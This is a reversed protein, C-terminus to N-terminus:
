IKAIVFLAAICIWTCTKTHVCTKSEHLYIGLVVLALNQTSYARSQSFGGSQSGCHGRGKVSDGAIAWLDQEGVDQHTNPTNLAGPKPWGSSHTTSGRRQKLKCKGSSVHCAAYKCPSVPWRQTNKTLHRDLDNARKQDPWVAVRLPVATQEPM